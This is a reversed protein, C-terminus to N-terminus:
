HLGYVAGSFRLFAETANEFVGRVKKCGAVLCHDCCAVVLNVLPQQM